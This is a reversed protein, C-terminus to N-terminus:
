KRSNWEASIMPWILDVYERQQRDTLKTHKSCFYGGDENMTIRTTTQPDDPLCNFESVTVQVEDSVMAQAAFFGSTFGIFIFASITTARKM